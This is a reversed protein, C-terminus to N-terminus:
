SSLAPPVIFRTSAVTCETLVTYACSMRSTPGAYATDTARRMPTADGNSAYGDATSPVLSTVARSM